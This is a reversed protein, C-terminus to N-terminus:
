HRQIDRHNVSVYVNSEDLHKYLKEVFTVSRHKGGTCGIAVTLQTKGEAIYLPILFDIMDVLKNFYEDAKPDVMVYDKIEKDIGTLNRLEEIYYPNRLCRVDFMLDADSPFGYKFGFSMCNILMGKSINDLFINSIRQKLQSTSIMSTDIIYSAMARLTLLKEREKKIADRTSFGDKDLLPHTRRTEKFRKELVEDSSDLYLIKYNVNMKDMEKLEDYIGDFLEGGRIDTVVAMKEIKGNTKDCIHFFKSILTPPMNDVCYYGIDELADIAISKGSGSLGTIIILEM